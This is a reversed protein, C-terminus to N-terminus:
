NKFLEKYKKYAKHKARKIKMKIASESKDLMEAIERISLEDQYKMLLVAKDAIPIEELIRKLRSVEIELLEEDKVDEIPEAANEIDDSFLKREKKKRRIFDICFNYTISYVWTSFKSRGSFKSLNMFIKVFIEQLADQALDENKLLSICKSYVKTSYRKHLISFYSSDYSSLYREILEEDKMKINDQSGM